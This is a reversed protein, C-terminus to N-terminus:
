AGLSDQIAIAAVRELVEAATIQSVPRDGFAPYTMGLCWHLKELTPQKQGERRSKAEFEEAVDRVTPLVVPPAAEAVVLERTAKRDASPDVGGALLKRAEDRERRADALGTDPYVGMSITRQKGEFRYSFRWLKGGKPEIQLFLGAGDSM